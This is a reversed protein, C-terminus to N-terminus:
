DNDSSSKKKKTTELCTELKWGNALCVNSCEELSKAKGIYSDSNNAHRNCNCQCAGGYIFDIELSTIKEIM